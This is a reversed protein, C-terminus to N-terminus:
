AGDAHGNQGIRLLGALESVAPDAEDLEGRLYAEQFEEPSLGTSRRVERELYAAYEEPTMDVIPTGAPSESQVMAQGHYKPRVSLRCAENREAVDPSAQSALRIPLAV